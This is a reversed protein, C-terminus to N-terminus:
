LQDPRYYRLEVANIDMPEDYYPKLEIENEGDWHLWPNLTM